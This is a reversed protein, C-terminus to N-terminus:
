QGRCLTECPRGDGDGDLSSVGCHNLYFRAEGCSAMQRCYRKTACQGSTATSAVSSPVVFKQQRRNHRWEWPAVTQGAPMAWLGRRAKKAEAELSILSYDILYERYAWAAGSRVMEANVDRGNVYVRGLTRGYRDHGRTVVTVPKSYALGSLAEKARHGWPQKSEPADIEVLRIRIREHAATLVTLTDGDTVGIVRGEIQGAAIAHACLILTFSFLSSVFIAAKRMKEVPNISCRSRYNRGVVM